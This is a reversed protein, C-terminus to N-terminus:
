FAAPLEALSIPCSRIDSVASDIVVEASTFDPPNSGETEIWSSVQTINDGGADSVDFPTFVYSNYASNAPEFVQSLLAVGNANYDSQNLGVQGLQVIEDDLACDTATYTGPKKWVGGAGVTATNGSITCNTLTISGGDWVSFGGGKMAASNDKISIGTLNAKGTTAIGAGYGQAINSLNSSGPGVINFNTGLDDLASGLTITGNLDDEFNITIAGGLTNGETIASRLSINGNADQATGSGPNADPLDGMTNVLFTADPCLRNELEELRLIAGYRNWQSRRLKRTSKDPVLGITRLLHLLMVRVGKPFAFFLNLGVGNDQSM